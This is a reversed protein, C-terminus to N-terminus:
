CVSLFWDFMLFVLALVFLFPVPVAFGRKRCPVAAMDSTRVPPNIKEKGRVAFAEGVFKGTGAACAARASVAKGSAVEVSVKVDVDVKGKVAADVSAEAPYARVSAARV